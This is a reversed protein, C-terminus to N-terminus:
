RRVCAGCLLGHGFVPDFGQKGLDKAESVLAAVAMKQLQLDFRPYRLALRGAVLPAAFSTGRVRVATGKPSIASFGSAPAAFDVHLAKGAEPLLQDRKDIGTVAIVGPWSAPYSPPAAPGDNGVAAVVLMGKSQAAMVARRLLANDPGVLSVTVVPVRRMTMWGLARAIAIANGGTPANGFVDAALLGRSAAESGVTGRAFILSAVATGHASPSPAGPVFGRQEVPGDFGPVAAVGGDILGALPRDVAGSAVLAASGKAPAQSGSSFYIHNAAIEAEPALVALRAQAKSLSLRAPIAFRAFGLDLGELKGYEIMRFGDIRAREIDSDAINTAVLEGRVAPNGDRDIALQSPHRAVIRALRDVRAIALTRAVTERPELGIRDALNAVGNPLDLRPLVAPGLQAVGASPIALLAAIGLASQIAKWM